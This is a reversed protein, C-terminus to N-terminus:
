NENENETHETKTKTKKKKQNTYYVNVLIRKKKRTNSVGFFFKTRSWRILSSSTSSSSLSLLIRPNQQVHVCFQYCSFFLFCFLSFNLREGSLGRSDNFFIEYWVKKDFGQNKKEKFNKEFWVLFCFCFGILAM